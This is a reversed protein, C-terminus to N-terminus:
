EDNTGLHEAALVGVGVLGGRQGANLTVGTGMVNKGGVRLRDIHKGEM